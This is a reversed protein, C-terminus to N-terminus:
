YVEYRKTLAEDNRYQVSSASWESERFICGQIGQVGQDGKDGKEGDDGKDGKDGKSGTDGKEAWVM